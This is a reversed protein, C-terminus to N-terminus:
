SHSEGTRSTAPENPDREDDDWYRHDNCVHDAVAALSDAANRLRDFTAAVPESMTILADGDQAIAACLSYAIRRLESAKLPRLTSYESTTARTATTTAM